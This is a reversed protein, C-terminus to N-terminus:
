SEFDFEDISSLITTARFSLLIAYDGRDWVLDKIGEESRMMKFNKLDDLQKVTTIFWSNEDKISTEQGFASKQRLGIHFVKKGKLIDLNSEEEVRSFMNEEGFIEKVKDYFLSTQTEFEDEIVPNEKESIEDPEEIEKYTEVEEVEFEVPEKKNSEEKIDDKSPEKEEKPLDEEVEYTYNDHNSIKGTLQREQEDLMNRIRNIQNVTDLTSIYSFIDFEGSREIREESDSDKEGPYMIYDLKEKEEDSLEETKKKFKDFIGM